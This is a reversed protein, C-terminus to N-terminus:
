GPSIFAFDFQAVVSGACNLFIHNFFNGAGITSGDSNKQILFPTAVPYTTIPAVWNHNILKSGTGFADTLTGVINISLNTVVPGPDCLGLSDSTGTGTFDLFYTGSLDGQCSGRGVVTWGNVTLHQVTGAATCVIPLGNVAHASTGM